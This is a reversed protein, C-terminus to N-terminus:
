RQKGAVLRRCLEAGAVADTSWYDAGVYQCIQGDIQGGGIIVPGQHGESRILNVTERMTEYSHTLLGSLGVIDPQVERARQAFFAPAVDVGLDTVAFHQCTLLMNVINKGLDHIDGQVTGLLVRGGLAEETLQGEVVPEVLKMIQGFIEGGMILGSLFYEQQEYREGVQVMGAQCDRMIELPDDGSALRQRVQDLAEEERLEAIARSLKASSDPGTM